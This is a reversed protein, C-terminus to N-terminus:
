KHGSLIVYGLYHWYPKEPIMMLVMAMMMVMVMMITMTVVMKMMQAEPPQYANAATVSQRFFISLDARSM